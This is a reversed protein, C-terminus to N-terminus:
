GLSPVIALLAQVVAHALLHSRQPSWGQQTDPLNRNDKFPMELTFALCKFADAVYNCALTAQEASFQHRVYGHETQFDPSFQRLAQQFSETWQRQQDSCSPNDLADALFVYPISEDGHVDLFFDVGIEQMKERVYFVEPADTCSPNQWQRNLDIGRANARLHGRCAGDPNMHPVVYIVAHQLLSKTHPDQSNLLKQLLGEMFWSAMIEGAHQRAILWLKAKHAQPEGITLLHLPRGECSTAVTELQCQSQISALWDLYREYSYPVFYAYFTLTQEPNHRIILHKGDFETPVRFWHQRDYSAVAQYDPWGDPYSANHVDTLILEREVGKAGDVSFYFWQFYPANTDPRIALRAQEAEISLVEINGGDFAAHIKM